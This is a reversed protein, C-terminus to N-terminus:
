AAKSFLTKLVEPKLLRTHKEMEELRGHRSEYMCETVIEAKGGAATWTRMGAFSPRQVVKFEPIMVTPKVSDDRRVVVSHDISVLFDPVSIRSRVAERQSSARRAKKVPKLEAPCSYRRKEKLVAPKAFPTPTLPRVPAKLRIVFSPKFLPDHTVVDLMESKCSLDTDSFEVPDEYNPREHAQDVSDHDETGDYAYCPLREKSTYSVRIMGNEFHKACTSNCYWPKVMLSAVNRNTRKLYCQAHFGHACGHCRRVIGADSWCLKCFSQLVPYSRDATLSGNASEHASLDLKKHVSWDRGHRFCLTRPGWPGPRWSTGATTGCFRCWDAGAEILAAYIPVGADLPLTLPPRQVEDKKPSKPVSVPMANCSTAPHTSGCSRLLNDIESILRSKILATAADTTKDGTRAIQQAGLSSRCGSCIKKCGRNGGTTAKALNEKCGVCLVGIFTQLLSSRLRAYIQTLMKKKDVGAPNASVGASVAGQAAPGATKPGRIGASTPTAASMLM